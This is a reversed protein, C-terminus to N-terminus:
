ETGSLDLREFAPPRRQLYSLTGEAADSRMLALGALVDAEDVADGLAATLHMYVLCKSVMPSHPSALRGLEIVYNRSEDMLRNPAVVRNVLGVSRAEVADVSRASWLLDLAHCPGVIRPLLWSVGHEAILGRQAFSTTFRASESVFRLDCAIALVFAGGACVGNVAALVPKRITLPWTFTRQMAAMAPDGPCAGIWGDAAEGVAAEGEVVADRLISVDLGASFARDGAGTLVTGVVARDQEAIAFAERLERLTRGTFANMTDTRDITIVAVPDEIELTGDEFTTITGM